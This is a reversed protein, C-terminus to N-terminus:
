QGGVVGGELFDGYQHRLCAFIVQHLEGIKGIFHTSFNVRTGGCHIGEIILKSYKVYEKADLNKTIKGILDSMAEKEREAKGRKESDSLEVKEEAKAEPDKTGYLLGDLAEASDGSMFLSLIGDGFTKTIWVLTELQKDVPWDGIIYTRGNTEYRTPEKAM